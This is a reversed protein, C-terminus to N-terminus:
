PIVKCATDTSWAMGPLFIDSVQIATWIPWARAKAGLLSALPILRVKSRLQVQSQVEPAVPIM